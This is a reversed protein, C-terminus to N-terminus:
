KLEKIMEINEENITASFISIKVNKLFNKNIKFFFSRIKDTNFIKDAEDVVLLKLNKNEIKKEKILYQLKGITM